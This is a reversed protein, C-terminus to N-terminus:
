HYLKRKEPKVGLTDAIATLTARSLESVGDLPWEAGLDMAALGCTLARANEEKPDNSLVSALVRACQAIAPMTDEPLLGDSAHVNM